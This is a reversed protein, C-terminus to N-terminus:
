EDPGFAMAPSDERYRDGARYPILRTMRRGDPLEITRLTMVELPRKESGRGAQRVHPRKATKAAPAISAVTQANGQPAAQTSQEEEHRTPAPDDHRAEAPPAEADQAGQDTAAQPKEVQAPSDRHDRTPDSIEAKAEQQSPAAPPNPQSSSASLPPDSSVPEDNAAAKLQDTGSVEPKSPVPKSQEPKSPEPATVQPADAQTPVPSANDAYHPAPPKPTATAVVKVPEPTTLWNLAGYGGGLLLAVAILYAFLAPM